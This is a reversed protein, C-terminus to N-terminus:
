SRQEAMRESYHSITRRIGEELSIGAKFGFEQEAKRTDLIRRPQGNPKSRDWIFEGEFGTLRAILHVLDKITIEFGAGLNVPERLRAGM